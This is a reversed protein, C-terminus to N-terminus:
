PVIIHLMDTALSYARNGVRQIITAPITWLSAVKLTRLADDLKKVSDFREERM